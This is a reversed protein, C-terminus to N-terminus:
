QVAGRPDTIKGTLASAAVTAASALYISSNPHGARGKFNRTGTSLLVEGEGIVGQCSGWCVSCNPNLVMAGSEVFIDILGESLAQLYIAKSAPSILLKMYPDVKNGRLIEAAARLEEIRGNNCSGIFGQNIKVESIEKIPVVDDVCHPIAIMPELEDLNYYYIKEYVADEDSTFLHMDQRGKSTVYEITTEDPAILGSKAGAEVAMNCLVVRDDITFDKVAPGGFEMIKYNAGNAGIDGIIKLILDRAYVGPKFKGEIIFKLTEPVMLWIEGTHMVSTFDTCGVGTGFAGLGGYSCTHSDAAIILQGPVVFDEIMIQHCVGTGEYFPIQHKQAFIRMKKHVEATKASESPVNHDVIFVVKDPNYVKEAKLQNEFIDINLHTTGDNSMCLDVKATIIEGPKVVDKGSARALIKEGITMGM